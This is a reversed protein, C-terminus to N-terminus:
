SGGRDRFVLLQTGLRNVYKQDSILKKCILELRRRDLKTPTIIPHFFAAARQISNVNENKTFAIYLGQGSPQPPRIDELVKLFDKATSNAGLVNGASSPIIGDFNRLWIVGEVWPVPQNHRKLFIRLSVRQQRVQETADKWFNDKGYFVKVHKSEFLIKHAPTDKVEVILCINVLRVEHGRSATYNGEFSIGKGFSGLLLLDIDQVEEGLCQAGVIILLQNAAGVIPDLIHSLAEGADRESGQDTGIVQVPM